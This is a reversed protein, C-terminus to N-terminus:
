RCTLVIHAMRHTRYKRLFPAHESVAACCEGFSGTGKGAKGM